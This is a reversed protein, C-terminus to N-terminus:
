DRTAPLSHFANVFGPWAFHYMRTVANRVADERIVIARLAAWGREARGGRRKWRWWRSHALIVPM